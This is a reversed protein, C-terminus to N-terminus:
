KQEKEQVALLMGFFGQGVVTDESSIGAMERLRHILSRAQNYREDEESSCSFEAQTSFSDSEANELVAALLDRPVSVMEPEDNM